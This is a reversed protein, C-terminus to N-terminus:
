DLLQAAVLRLSAVGFVDKPLQRVRIRPLRAFRREVEDLYRREETKRSEYFEGTLGDPLVRNVILGGVDVGTEALLEAARVTEQIVIREPITVLVFSTRRRNTLLTHLQDIRARRRELAGLIPDAAAAEAETQDSGRELDLVARRHRVLAQIWTKIADPM